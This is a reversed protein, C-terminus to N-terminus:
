RCTGCCAGRGARARWHRHPRRGDRRPRAALGPPLRGPRRRGQLLGVSDVPQRHHRRGRTQVRAHAVGRRQHPLAATRKSRSAHRRQAERAMGDLRESTDAQTGDFDELLSILAHQGAEMATPGFGLAMVFTGDSSHLDIEGTLGRQRERRAYYNQNLRKDAQLEAM